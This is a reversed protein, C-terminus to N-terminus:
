HLRARTVIQGAIRYAWAKEFNRPGAATPRVEVWQVTAFDTGATVDDALYDELETLLTFARDRVPSCDAATTGDAGMVFLEFEINWDEQRAKRGAKITAIVYDTWTVPGLVLMEPVANTGPWSEFTPLGAATLDAILSDLVVPVTSTTSM